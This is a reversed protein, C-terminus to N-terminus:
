FFVLLAKENFPFLLCIYETNTLVLSQTKTDHGEGSLVDNSQVLAYYDCLMIVSMMQMLHLIICM